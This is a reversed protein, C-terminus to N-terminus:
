IICYGQSFLIIMGRECFRSSLNLTMTVYDIASSSISITEQSGTRNRTWDGLITELTTKYSM